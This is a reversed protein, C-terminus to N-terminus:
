RCRISSTCGSLDAPIPSPRPLGPSPFRLRTQASSPTLGVLKDVAQVIKIKVDAAETAAEVVLDAPALAGYHTSTQILCTAAQRGEPSMQGKAVLRDFGSGIREVAKGLANENVDILTVQFGAAAAVQAIGAGTTGAGVVAIRRASM